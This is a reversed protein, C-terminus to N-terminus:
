PCISTNSVEGVFLGLSGIGLELEDDESITEALVVRCAHLLDGISGNVLNEDELFYEEGDAPESSPFLSYRGGDYIVITPHLGTVTSKEESQPQDLSLVHPTSESVGVEDSIKPKANSDLDGAPVHYPAESQLLESQESTANHSTQDTPVVPMNPHNSDHPDHGDLLNGRHQQHHLDESAGRDNQVHSGNGEENPQELDHGLPTPSGLADEVNAGGGANSQAEQHEFADPVVRAQAEAEDESLDLLDEDVLAPPPVDLMLGDPSTAGHGITVGDDEMYDNVDTASRLEIDQDEQGAIDDQMADEHHNDRAETTPEFDIDFDEDVHGAESSLEMEDQHSMVSLSGLVDAM